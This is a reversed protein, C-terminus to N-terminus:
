SESINGIICISFISTIFYSQQSEGELQNIHIKWEWSPFLGTL